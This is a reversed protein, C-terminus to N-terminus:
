EAAEAPDDLPDLGAPFRLPDYAEDEQEWFRADVFAANVQGPRDPSWKWWSMSARAPPVGFDPNQSHFHVSETPGVFCASALGCAAAFATTAKTRLLKM